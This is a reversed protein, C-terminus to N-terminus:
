KQGLVGAENRLENWFCWGQKEIKDWIGSENRLERWFCWGLKEIRDWFVLM